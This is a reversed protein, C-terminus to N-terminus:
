STINAGNNETTDTTKCTMWRWMHECMHQLDYMPEWGLEQKALSSDSSCMAIEGPKRECFEVPIKKGSLKEFIKVMELISCVHSSGLNYVRYQAHGHPCQIAAVTGKAIDVIHTYAKSATGDPTDFDNGFISLTDKNGLAVQCILPMLNQPPELRDEGLHGSPHAGCPNFYRLITAKFHKNAVTIDSIMQEVMHKTRGYPNTCNGSPHREDLPLYIPEGYVKSSSSFIIENVGKALMVELLNCTGMVNVNYFSLPSGHSQRVAKLGALHIVHSIPVQQFISAIQGVNLLDAYFYQVEVGSMSWVRKMAEELAEQRNDLAVPKFGACILEHIVHTGVYGAAGTVLVCSPSSMM